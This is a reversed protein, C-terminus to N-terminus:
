RVVPLLATKAGLMGEYLELEDMEEFFQDVIRELDYVHLDLLKMADEDLPDLFRDRGTVFGCARVLIRAVHVLCAIENFSEARLPQHHSRICTTLLPPLRWTHALLAGLQPPDAGLEEKLLRPLPGEGADLRACARAYDDSFHLIAVISGLDHLLGATQLTEDDYRAHLRGACHGALIRTMTACANAQGWCGALEKRHQSPIPAVGRILGHVSGLGTQMMAVSLQTVDNASTANAEGLVQATLMPDIALVATVV